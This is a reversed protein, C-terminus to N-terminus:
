RDRLEATPMLSVDGLQKIVHETEAAFRPQHRDPHDRDIPRLDLRVRRHILVAAVAAQDPVDEAFSLLFILALILEVAVPTAILEGLLQTVRPQGSQRPVETVIRVPNVTV